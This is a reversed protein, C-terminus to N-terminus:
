TNILENFKELIVARSKSRSNMSEINKKAINIAISKASNIHFKEYIIIKEIENKDFMQDHMNQRPYFLSLNNEKDELM